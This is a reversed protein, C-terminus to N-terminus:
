NGLREAQSLKCYNATTQRQGTVPPPALVTWFGENPSAIKPGVKGDLTLGIASILKRFAAARGLFTHSDLTYRQACLPVNDTKQRM